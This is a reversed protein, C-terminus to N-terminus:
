ESWVNNNISFSSSDTNDSSETTGHRDGFETIPIDLDSIESEDKSAKSPTARPQSITSFAEDSTRDDDLSTNYANNVNFDFMDSNVESIVSQNIQDEATPCSAVGSTADAVSESAISGTDEDTNAVTEMTERVSYMNDQIINETDAVSQEIIEPTVNYSETQLTHEEDGHLVYQEDTPAKHRTEKNAMDEVEDILSDPIPLSIWKNCNIKHGTMLLMFYFGTSDNSSHLAVAPIGRASMTNDTGTYVMVYAGFTLPLKDYKMPGRGEVLLSPSQQIVSGQAQFANLVAAIREMLGVIMVTPLSRYPLDNCVSHAREKITHISQEIIPVHEDRACFHMNAPLFLEQISTGKFEKDSFVDTITFGRRLYQNVVFGLKTVITEEKRNPLHQVTVYNIDKSKTHLFPVSNIYFIDLYLKIKMSEETIDKPIPSQTANNRVQSQRTLNGQLAAMPPGHIANARSVDARTIDCGQLQGSEIHRILSEHSPWLLLRQVERARRAKECDKKGYLLKNERVTTLCSSITGPLITTDEDIDAAHQPNLLPQLDNSSCHFLGGSAGTFRVKQGMYQLVLAPEYGNEMIISVCPLDMVRKLSLINAISQSNFYVNLPLFNFQGVHRYILSGGNTHM